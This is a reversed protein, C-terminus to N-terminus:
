SSALLRDRLKKGHEALCERRKKKQAVKQMCSAMRLKYGAMKM